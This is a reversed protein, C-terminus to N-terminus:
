NIRKIHPISHKSKDTDMENCRHKDIRLVYDLFPKFLRPSENRWQWTGSSIQFIEKNPTRAQWTLNQAAITGETLDTYETFESIPFFDRNIHNSTKTLDIFCTPLRMNSLYAIEQIQKRIIFRVLVDPFYM